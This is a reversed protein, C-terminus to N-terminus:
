KFFEKLCKLLLKNDKRTKVAVRFYRDGLGIYNSCNRIIINKKSLYNELSVLKKGNIIECLIYNTYSLFVKIGKIKSLEIILHYKEEKIYSITKEIYNRDNLIMDGILQSFCNVSWPPQMFKLKEIISEHAAILGLRLGPIAYFKTLTKLIILYKNKGIYGSLTNDNYDPLFDLFAEDIFLYKKHKKCEILLEELEERTYIYGSPNNPNSLYVIDVNKDKLKKIINNIEVKFNDKNKGILNFIKSDIKNLSLEYEIYDPQIIIAKGPKLSCSLLYILETSGNGLIINKQNIDYFSSISELLKKYDPDPYSMISKINSIIAKKILPHYGLPNINSSFDIIKNEMINFNESAARLNGGHTIM